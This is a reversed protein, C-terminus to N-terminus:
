EQLGNEFAALNDLISEPRQKTIGRGPGWEDGKPADERQVSTKIAGMISGKTDKQNESDEGVNAPIWACRCNPHRPLMGRAEDLKLVMGELPECLECVGDDQATVWEVAVGVLEVGLNEMADLQGEAHARIIETRAITQARSQGLDVEEALDRGIERPNKGQVLGDVLKRGMRTSMDTTINQLDDFSRGALLKVKDVSEPRGFASRLFQERTGAYFDLAKEGVAAAVPKVDDFARGAGKKFGERTYIEWLEQETKGTVLSGLQQKLWAQFAKVKEPDNNFRWRDNTTLENSTFRSVQVGVTTVGMSKLAQLRHKGDIVRYKGGEQAVVTLAQVKGSKRIAKELSAAWRDSAEKDYGEDHEGIVSDISVLKVKDKLGKERYWSLKIGSYSGSGNGPSCSDDVGGGPGTPCFANGVYPSRDKLGFADEDVVLKLIRVKLASFQQKIKRSFSRRLLFTRTPDIRLPSPKRRANHVPRPNWIMDSGAFKTFGMKEYFGRAEDRVTRAIIPKGKRQLERVLTGGAGKEISGVQVLEHKGTKSLKYSMVGVLKDGKVAFIKKHEDTIATGMESYRPDDFASEPTSSMFKEVHDPASSRLTIGAGAGSPSCSPDIGGGQDTACFANHVHKPLKKGKPTAAEWEKCDWNPDDAAYCARRQEESVFPNNTLSNVELETIEYLNTGEANKTIKKDTSPRMKAFVFREGKHDRIGTVELQTGDRFLLEGEKKHYLAPEGKAPTIVLSVGGKVLSGQGSRGHSQSLTTSMFGADHLVDGVKAKTLEPASARRYVTENGTMRIPTTNLEKRVREVQKTATAVQDNVEKELTEVRDAVYKNIEKAYKGKTPRQEPRFIGRARLATAEAGALRSEKFGEVGKRLLRNVDIYNGGSGFYARRLGHATDGIQAAGANTKEFHSTAVEIEKTADESKEPIDGKLSIAGGTGQNPSCSDDIGGGPGTPCFANVVMKRLTKRNRVKM